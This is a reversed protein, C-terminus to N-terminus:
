LARIVFPFAKCFRDVTRCVEWAWRTSTHKSPKQGRCEAHWALNPVENGERPEVSEMLVTVEEPKQEPTVASLMAQRRATLGFAVSLKSRSPVRSSFLSGQWVALIGCPWKKCPCVLLYQAAAESPRIQTNEAISKEQFSLKDGIPGPFLGFCLVTSAGLYLFETPTHLLLAYM